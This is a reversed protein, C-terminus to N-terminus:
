TCLSLCQSIFTSHLFCDLPPVLSLVNYFMTPPLTISKNGFFQPVSNHFLPVWGLKPSTLLTGAPSLLRNSIRLSYICTLTPSTALPVWAPNTPLYLMKTNNWSSALPSEALPLFVERSLYSNRLCQKPANGKQQLGYSAILLELILFSM